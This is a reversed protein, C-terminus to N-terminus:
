SMVPLDAEFNELFILVEESTSPPAEPVRVRSRVFAGQNPANTAFFCPPLGFSDAFCVSKLETQAPPEYGTPGSGYKELFILVEKSISPPAEPVRVRFRM